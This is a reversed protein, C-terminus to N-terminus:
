RRYQNDVHDAVAPLLTRSETCTGIGLLAAHGFAVATHFVPPADM